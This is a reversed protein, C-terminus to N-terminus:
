FNVFAKSKLLIFIIANAPSNHRLFQLHSETDIIITVEYSLINTSISVLNITFNETYFINNEILINVKLSEVLHLKCKIYVYVELSEQDLSSIYFTTFTFEYFKYKSISIDKVKLPVSM